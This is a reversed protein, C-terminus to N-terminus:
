RHLSLNSVHISFLSNTGYNIFYRIHVVSRCQHTRLPLASSLIYPTALFAFSLQLFHGIHHYPLTLNSLPLFSPGIWFGLHFLPFLPLSSCLDFVSAVRRVSTGVVLWMIGM